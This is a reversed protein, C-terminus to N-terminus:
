FEDALSSCHEDLLGLELALEVSRSGPYQRLRHKVIQRDFGKRIGLQWVVGTSRLSVYDYKCLPELELGPAWPM